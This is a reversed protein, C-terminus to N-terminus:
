IASTMSYLPLIISIVLMGVALGLLVIIIPEILRVLRGIQREVDKAYFDALKELVKDLRGTEEGVDLMQTLMMPVVKSKSFVTSIANGDEVEKITELTLERFVVNGVVDAVIELARPLPVGSTVLSAFSRTLRTLYIKRAINGFIPIKLKLFDVMFRGQPTKTYLRYFFFLGVFVFGIVWWFNELFRSTGILVRTALPLETGAEELIKTLKPIVFIMMIAGVVIIGTLIFIPYILADKIKNFFEYDKEKQDALYNLVEDLRGTTEGSRIMNVFFDDFVKPFRALSQSLKAGGDVEEAIHSLIVKFSINETQRTLIRLSRVIPITASIMVALQRSFFVVEERSIRHFSVSFVRGIPKRRETISLVILNKEKLLDAAVAESIAEVAGSVTNGQYDKAKYDYIVM